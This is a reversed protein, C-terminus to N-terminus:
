PIVYLGLVVVCMPSFAVTSLVFSAVGLVCEVHGPEAMFFKGSVATEMRAM